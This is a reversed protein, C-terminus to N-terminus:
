IPNSETKGSEVQGLTKSQIRSVKGSGIQSVTKSPIQSLKKQEIWTMNLTIIKSEPWMMWTMNWDPNLSYWIQLPTKSIVWCQFRPINWLELFEFHIQHPCELFTLGGRGFFPYWVYDSEMQYLTLGICHCGKSFFNISKNPKASFHTSWLFLSQTTSSGRAFKRFKQNLETPSGRTIKQNWSLFIYSAIM